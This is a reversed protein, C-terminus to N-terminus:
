RKRQVLFKEIDRREVVTKEGWRFLLTKMVYEEINLFITDSIAVRPVSFIAERREHAMCRDAHDRYIGGETLSSLSILRDMEQITAQLVIRADRHRESRRLIDTVCLGVKIGEINGSELTPLTDRFAAFISSERDMVCYPTAWWHRRHKVVHILIYLATWARQSDCCDKLGLYSNVLFYSSDLSDQQKQENSINFQIILDHVARAIFSKSTTQSSVRLRNSYNVFPDFWQFESLAPKVASHEMISATSCNGDQYGNDPSFSHRSNKASYSASSLPLRWDVPSHCSSRPVMSLPRQLSGICEVWSVPSQPNQHADSTPSRHDFYANRSALQDRPKTQWSTADSSMVRLPSRLLSQCPSFSMPPEVISLPDLSCDEFLPGPSREIIECDEPCPTNCSIDSPTAACLSRLSYTLCLVHTGGNGADAMIIDDTIGNDRKFREIKETYVPRGRVRFISEKPPRDVKREIDKRVIARM